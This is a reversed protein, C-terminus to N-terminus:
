SVVFAFGGGMLPCSKGVFSSAIARVLFRGTNCDRSRPRNGPHALDERGDDVSSRATATPPQRKKQTRSRRSTAWDTTQTGQSGRKCRGRVAGEEQKPIKGGPGPGLVCYVAVERTERLTEIKVARTLPTGRMNPPPSEGHM